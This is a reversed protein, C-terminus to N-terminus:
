LLGRSAVRWEKATLSSHRCGPTLSSSTQGTPQHSLFSQAQFPRRRSALRRFSLRQLHDWDKREWASCASTETTQVKFGTPLEWETALQSLTGPSQWSHAWATLWNWLLCHSPAWVPSLSWRLREMTGLDGPVQGQRCRWGRDVNNKEHGKPRERGSCM